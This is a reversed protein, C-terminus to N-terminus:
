RSIDWRLFYNFPTDEPDNGDATLYELLPTRTTRAVDVGNPYVTVTKRGLEATRHPIRIDQAQLVHQSAHLVPM